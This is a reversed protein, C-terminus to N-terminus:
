PAEAGKRKGKNKTHHLKKNIFLNKKITAKATPVKNPV